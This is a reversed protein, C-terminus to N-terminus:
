RRRRRALAIAGVVLAGIAIAGGASIGTAEGRGARPARAREFERLADFAAVMQAVSLEVRRDDAASEAVTAGALFAAAERAERAERAIPLQEGIWKERRVARAVPHEGAVEPFAALVAVIDVIQYGPWRPGAGGRDVRVTPPRPQIRGENQFAILAALV